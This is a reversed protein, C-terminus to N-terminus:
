MQQKRSLKKNACQAYNRNIHRPIDINVHWTNFNQINSMHDHRSEINHTLAHNLGSWGM